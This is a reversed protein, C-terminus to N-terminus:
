TQIRLPSFECEFCMECGCDPQLTGGMCIYESDNVLLQKLTKKLHGQLMSICCATFSWVKPHLMALLVHCCCQTNLMVLLVHCCCKTYGPLCCVITDHIVLFANETVQCDTCSFLTACPKFLLIHCCCQTHSTGQNSVVMVATCKGGTSFVDNCLPVLRRM